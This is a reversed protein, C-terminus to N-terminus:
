NGDIKDDIITLKLTRDSLFRVFKFLDNLDEIQKIQLSKHYKERLSEVWFISPLKQKISSLKRNLFGGYPPTM